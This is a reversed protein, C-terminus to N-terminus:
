LNGSDIELRLFAMHQHLEPRERAQHVMLIARIYFQSARWLTERSEAYGIPKLCARAWHGSWAVLSIGEHM